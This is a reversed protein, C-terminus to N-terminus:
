VIMLIEIKELKEKIIGGDTLHHNIIQPHMLPIVM